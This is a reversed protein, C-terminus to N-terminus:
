MLIYGSRGQMFVKKVEAGLQSFDAALISASVKTM